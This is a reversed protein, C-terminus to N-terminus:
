QNGGAGGGNPAGGGANLAEQIKELVEPKKVADGLDIAHLKAYAKLQPLTQEEIPKEVVPEDDEDVIEVHAALRDYGTRNIEFEEEARYVKGNHRVPIDKVSVIM